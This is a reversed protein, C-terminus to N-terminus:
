NEISTSLPNSAEVISRGGVYILAWAETERDFLSIAETSFQVGEAPHQVLNSDRVM